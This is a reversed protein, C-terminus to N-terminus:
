NADDVGLEARLKGLGRELHNQVSTAKMGLMTAAETQSLGMAHVLVVAQRQRPSLKRLAPLLGPEVWPERDSPPDPFSIRRFAHRKAWNEGVRYLYGVPNQLDRVREWHEWGYALAEATADRGLDVGFRAVLGRRLRPEVDQVFAVFAPGVVIEPSAPRVM